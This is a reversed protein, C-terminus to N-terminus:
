EAPTATAETSTEHGRRKTGRALLRYFLPIFFTAVFTAMLMGGIVGTGISHRSASGAGTSIALPVVGLVFALSTMIIPRFRLKAGELAADFATLGEDRKLVAFEVILIANKAALGVLTVLGIQFYVDNNLGRLWIALLAGCIAFPVALIVALPLSWREYQAALILFIMIIGFVVATFGTGGTAIEQYASGTWAIEYGEPLTKAVEQMAKLAQGSSYGPAPGGSVKASIFSNFREILDPGVVRKVSVLTSLPIMSGSDAKVYVFNLDEPKERFSAESQLSVRYNRGLLTFDNVYLSGFTSQMTTFISSIPVGLAKAKERDVDVQYQPVNASFSSRVGALEPRKATEAVLANTVDILAQPGRGTRDQVYLDFGGTTSLGIIPPPNFALVMADKIGANMGMFPGPLARADESPDKREDWDKLSVFAAGSSTRGVGALLDFGAFAVTDRVAPHHSLNDTVQQMVDTTRSLSAAPPLIGVVFLVGQDEDPVLAGPLTTLFYYAGGIITAFLVFAVVVRRMIFSVGVGYANTLADFGRNFWRFPAWPEGHTPKLIISCLAPTLTLAVIGSITVSVAITVAFQRYMTGALGGLFAVPVFVACLVLVIAIVPGTVESMAKVTAEKPPLGEQTMIREVNELVVIADDVVIGIALVLGFLTLLNLSFGLALLVGFTGVISVPVAIMPILTARFSQLFIFVVIFVLVMAEIFTHIVEDISAQVFKTTDFPISYSIGDPFQASLEKMRSDVAAITDLANAGPQLYIGIPVTPNNNLMGNFSYDQAGLEVRAVDKLLLQSANADSKLIINEFAAADPLRGETTVSYTFALENPSPEAGFQGAAFQANQERIATAVDAPTLGYQALADPRLWIRMSYNRSGFLQAEGVGPVRKLEDLVYLLAYNSVYTADYREDSSSMAVIALISTSRKAVTVGLRQVEEPLLATAQQVRNNVNITAQDPDTGSAFTVTIQSNGSSSNVSQMYLMDEVGNVQQEIPAAVTQAVTLASAGPYNATIVVQPPVLEPYQEIPLIRLAMLGALVIVISIVSAFVPRDVFFRSSM